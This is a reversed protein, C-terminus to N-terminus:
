ERRLRCLHHGQHDRDHVSDAGGDRRIGTLPGAAATAPLMAQLGRAASRRASRSASGTVTGPRSASPRCTARTSGTSCSVRRSSRCAARRRRRSSPPPGPIWASIPTSTPSSPATSARRRGAGSRATHRDHLSLVAGIRGDDADGGSLRRHRSGDARAFRMPFGSGTFLGPRDNVWTDPWYYYNTDLRIGNRPRSRPRRPTTAGCSATPATPGRRRCAQSRAPSPAWTTPTTAQLSSVRTTQATRRSTHASDRLGRSRVRGRAGAAAAHESLHLVDRPCLDLRRRQLRVPERGRVPRLPGRDRELAHDDGTM